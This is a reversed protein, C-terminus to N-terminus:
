GPRDGRLGDVVAQVRGAEAPPVDIEVLKRRSKPGVLLRVCRRPVGTSAALARLAAETARGSEPPEVVRVVLAGDFAGGVGPASSSARVHIPVRM